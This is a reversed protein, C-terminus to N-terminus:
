FLCIFLIKVLYVGLVVFAVMVTRESIPMWRPYLYYCSPFVGAQFYGILVQLVILYSVSIKAIIPILLNLLCSMTICLGLTFTGGYKNSLFNAPLQGIAYGYYLSSFILQLSSNSWSLNESMKLFTISINIRLIFLLLTSLCLVIIVEWRIPILVSM